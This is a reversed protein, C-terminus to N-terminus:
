LNEVLEFNDLERKMAQPVKQKPKRTFAKRIREM